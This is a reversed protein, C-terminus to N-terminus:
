RFSEYIQHTGIAHFHIENESIFSFIIRYHYDISFAWYNKLRGSLKHTKLRPDHPNERFILERREAAKKVQMPLRKYMKAFQPSYSIEIM